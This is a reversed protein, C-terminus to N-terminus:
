RTPPIPLRARVAYGGTGRPGAELHGGYIAARERMGLLGHGSHGNVTGPQRPAGDDLVELEVTDTRYRVAVRAAGADAHKLVNTLAEQVIRYAALDVGPPLPRHKGEHHLHVSVGAERMREALTHLDSLGPQPALAAPAAADPRLVGLLRRLEGLAQRGSEQVSILPDRAREPDSDLMREAAGAQVVIVSVAHAVVDHLERAIRTREDAVAARANEDRSLQLERTAAHLEDILLRRGRIARGALSAGGLLVLGWGLNGAAHGLASVATSAYGILFGLLAQLPPVRSTFTYLVILASMVTALYDHLAVGLAWALVFGAFVVLLAPWPYRRRAALPLGLLVGSLVGAWLPGSVQGSLVEAEAFATVALALAVDLTTQLPAPWRM